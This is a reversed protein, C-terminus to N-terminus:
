ELEPIFLRDKTQEQILINAEEDTIERWNYPSDNAGLYIKKGFEEGNTLTMGEGAILKVISITEAIM